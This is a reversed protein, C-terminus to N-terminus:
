TSLVYLAYTEDAKTIQQSLALHSVHEIHQLSLLCLCSVINSWVTRVGVFVGAMHYIHWRFLILVSFKITFHKSHTWLAESCKTMAWEAFPSCRKCHTGLSINQIIEAEWGTGYSRCFSTATKWFMEVFLKWSLLQPLTQRSEGCQFHPDPQSTWPHTNLCKQLSHSHSFWLRTRCKRKKDGTMARKACKREREPESVREPAKDARSHLVPSSSIHWWDDTSHARPSRAASWVPSRRCTHAWLGQGCQLRDKQTGDWYDFVSGVGCKSCSHGALFNAEIQHMLLDWVVSESLM